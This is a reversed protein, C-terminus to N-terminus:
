FTGPAIFFDLTGLTKKAGFSHEFNSSDREAARCFTSMEEQDRCVVVVVTV